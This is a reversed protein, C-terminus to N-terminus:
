SLLPDFHGALNMTVKGRVELLQTVPCLVVRHESGLGFVAPVHGVRVLCTVQFLKAFAGQQFFELLVTSRFLFSQLHKTQFGEPGPEFFGPLFAVVGGDDGCGALNGLGDELFVGFEEHPVVLGECAASLVTSVNTELEPHPHLNVQVILGM